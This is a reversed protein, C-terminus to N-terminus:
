WTAAPAPGSPRPWSRRTPTCPSCSSGSRRAPRQKIQRTAEVGDIEPMTVDMLIVDPQLEDALRVAEDGDRAEGVVDFGQDTMSRRLGERLMRHDDALM